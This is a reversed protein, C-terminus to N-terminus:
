QYNTPRSIFHKQHKIHLLKDILNYYLYNNRYYQILDRGIIGSFLVYFYVIEYLM